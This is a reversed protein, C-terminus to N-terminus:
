RGGGKRERFIVECGPNDPDKKWGIFVPYIVEMNDDEILDIEVLFDQISQALNILDFRRNTRRYFYMCLEFPRELKDIQEKMGSLDANDTLLQTKTDKVWQTYRPNPLVKKNKTIIFGRKKSPVENKLMLKIKM